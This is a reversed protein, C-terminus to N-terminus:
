RYIATFDNTTSLNSLAKPNTTCCIVFGEQKPALIPTLVSTAGKGTSTLCLSARYLEFYGLRTISHSEYEAHLLYIM